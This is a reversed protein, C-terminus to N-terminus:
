IKYKLQLPQDRVGLGTKPVEGVGGFQSKTVGATRPSRLPPQLRGATGAANPCSSPDLYEPVAPRNCNSTTIRLVLMKSIRSNDVTVKLNKIQM